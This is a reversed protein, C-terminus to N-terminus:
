LSAVASTDLVEVDYALYIWNSSGVFAAVISLKKQELLAIQCYHLDVTCTNWM